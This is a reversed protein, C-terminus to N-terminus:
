QVLPAHRHNNILKPWPLKAPFGVLNATALGDTLVKLPMPVAVNWALPLPECVLEAELKLIVQVIDAPSETTTKPDHDDAEVVVGVTTVVPPVPLSENM